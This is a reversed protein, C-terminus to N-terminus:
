QDVRAPNLAGHVIAAVIGGVLPAILFLWVQSLAASGVVFAPGLRRAPDVSTGTSPIGIPQGVTLTLGIGLFAGGASLHILSAARDVGLGLGQISTSHLPSQRFM